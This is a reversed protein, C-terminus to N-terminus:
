ADQTRVLSRPPRDSPAPSLSLVLRVEPIPAYAAGGVAHWEPPAMLVLAIGGCLSKCIASMAAHDTGSSRFHDDGMGHRVHEAHSPVSALCRGTEQTGIGVTFTVALVLMLIQLLKTM